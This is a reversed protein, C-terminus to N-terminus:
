IKLNKKCCCEEKEVEMRFEKKLMESPVIFDLAKGCMLCNFEKNLKILNINKSDLHLYEELEWTASIYALKLSSLISKSHTNTYIIKGAKKLYDEVKKQPIEEELFTEKIADLVIEDFKKFHEMKVPFLVISYRIKNNM